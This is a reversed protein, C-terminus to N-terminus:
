AAHIIMSGHDVLNLPLEPGWEKAAIQCEIGASAPDVMQLLHGTGGAGCLKFSSMFLKSYLSDRKGSDMYKFHKQKLSDHQAVLDPLMHLHRGVLAKCFEEVLRICESRFEGLDEFGSLIKNADRGKGDRPSFLHIWSTLRKRWFEDIEVKKYHSVAGCSVYDMKLLGGIASIYQDQRGCPRKLRDIEIQCALKALEIGGVERYGSLTLVAHICAVTTAASSGLGSGVGPVDAFTAIEIGHHIGERLLIERIIDHSLLGSQAVNEHERWHVIVRKDHRWKAIAYVYKDIASSVTSGSLVGKKWGIDKVPLDSGGGVFSVRLPTRAIVVKM